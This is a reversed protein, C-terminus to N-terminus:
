LATEDETQKLVPAFAQVEDAHAIGPPINHMAILLSAADRDKILTDDSPTVSWL